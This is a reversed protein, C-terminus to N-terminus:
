AGRRRLADVAVLGLALAAPVVMVAYAGTGLAAYLAGSAATMAAMALTVTTAALAQAGALRGPVAHAAIQRVMALYTAGFSLGHLAQLPLAAVFGPELTLCGWRVVAAAGGLAALAAPAVPGLVRGPLAFLVVEAVVGVAWLTGIEATSFGARAWALSGFGYLVTHSSQVLACAVVVLLAPRLAALSGLMGPRNVPAPASMPRRALHVAAALTLAFAAALMWFVAESGTRELVLGAAYSAVIFALSGWARIRGYSAGATRAHRMAVADAIPTQSTWFATVVVSAALLGWFGQAAGILWVLAFALAAYLAIARTLSGLRDAAAALLPLVVIRVAFPAALVIGIEDADLGRGSLFVPFFPLHVGVGLFLAAFYLSLARSDARAAAAGGAPSL